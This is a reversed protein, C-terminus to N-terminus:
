VECEYKANMSTSAGKANVINSRRFVIDLDTLLFAYQEDEGLCQHIAM